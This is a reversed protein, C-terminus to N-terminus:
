PDEGDEVVEEDAEEVAPEVVVVEIGEAHVEGNYKDERYDAIEGEGYTSM